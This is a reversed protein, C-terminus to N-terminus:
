RQRERQVGRWCLGDGDIVDGDGPIVQGAEVVVRDGLRLENGSIQEETGDDLLRRATTTTRTQRLTAAQAKGRGEAIAEALNAFVITAWLWLTISIAFASPQLVSLATTLVSGIWVVFIVPQRVLHRPDLKALAQPLNELAQATLPKRAPGQHGDYHHPRLTTTM